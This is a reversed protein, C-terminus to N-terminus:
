FPFFILNAHKKLAPHVSLDPLFSASACLDIQILLQTEIHSPISTKYMVFIVLHFASASQFEFERM